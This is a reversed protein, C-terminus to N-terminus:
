KTTILYRFKNPIHYSKSSTKFSSVSKQITEKVKNMGSQQIAIETIGPSLLAKMMIEESNYNWPCDVSESSQITLGANESLMELEGKGSFSFPNIEVPMEILSLVSKIYVSSKCEEETAFTALIVKGSRKTVRACEILVGLPDEHMQIANIITVIDFSMDEYPLTEMDGLIFSGNKVRENAIKLSPESAEFGSVRAGRSSALYCFLGTGCGVDLLTTSSKINCKNLIAEYLPKAQIEQYEAWDRARAGWIKTQFETIKSDMGKEKIIPM